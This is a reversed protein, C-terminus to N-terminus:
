SFVMYIFLIAVIFLISKIDSSTDPSIEQYPPPNSQNNSNNTNNPNNPNNPNPNPNPNNPNNPNSQNNGNTTARSNWWQMVQRILLFILNGILFIPSTTGISFNGGHYNFHVFGPFQFNNFM